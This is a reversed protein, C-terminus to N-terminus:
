VTRNKPPTVGATAEVVERIKSTEVSYLLFDAQRAVDNANALIKVSTGKFADNLGELREPLDSGLVSFGMKSWKRACLAGMDGLGIIGINM